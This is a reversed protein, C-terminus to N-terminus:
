NRAFKKNANNYYYSGVIQELQLRYLASQAEMARNSARQPPGRTMKIWNSVLGSFASKLENGHPYNEVHFIFDEVLLDHAGQMLERTTTFPVQAYTAMASSVQHLYLKGEVCRYLESDKNFMIVPEIMTLKCVTQVFNVYVAFQPSTKKGVGCPEITQPPGGSPHIFPIASSTPVGLGQRFEPGAPGEPGRGTMNVLSRTMTHLKNTLEEWVITLQRANQKDNETTIATLLLSNFREVISSDSLRANLTAWYNLTEGPSENISFVNDLPPPGRPLPGPLADAPPPVSVRAEGEEKSGM